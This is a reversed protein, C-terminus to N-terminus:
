IQYWTDVGNSMLRLTANAAPTINGSAGSSNILSDGGLPAVTLTNASADIRRIILEWSIGSGLSAPDPLNIQFSGGTVNATVYKHTQNLSHPAGSNTLAQYNGGVAGNFYNPASGQMYANWRATGSVANAGYFSYATTVQADTQDDALFGYLTTVAAGTAVVAAQVNYGIATTIPTGSAADVYTLQDYGKYTAIAANAGSPKYLGSFFGTVATVTQDTNVNIINYDGYVTATSAGTPAYDITKIHNYKTGSTATWSKYFTHNANNNYHNDSWAGLVLNGVSRVNQNAATFLIPTTGASSRTFTNGVLTYYGNTDRVDVGYTCDFTTCGTIVASPSGSAAASLYLATDCNRFACATIVVPVDGHEVTVGRAAAQVQCGTMTFDPSAGDVKFGYKGTRATNANDYYCNNFSISFAGACHFGVDYGFAFCDSVRTGDAGALVGNIQFLYATGPRQYYTVTTSAWSTIPWFHCQSVFCLDTTQTIHIGYVCDGWIGKFVSGDAAYGYIAKNFGVIFCNEVLVNWAREGGATGQTYIATGTWGSYAAGANVTAPDTADNDWAVNFYSPILAVGKIGSHTRLTIFNAAAGSRILCYKMQEFHTTVQGPATVEHDVGPLKDSGLLLVGEPITLSTVLYRKPGLRVVSNPGLTAAYNLQDQIASTDDTVGDGVAGNDDVLIIINNTIDHYDVDDWSVNTADSKLYKGAHGTQTPLLANRAALATTQGTGGNAIPLAGSVESTLDITTDVSATGSTMKVYGTSASFDQGTGGKATTVIGTVSNINSRAVAVADDFVDQMSQNTLRLEIYAGADFAQASTGEQGRTVTLNNGSLATVKVIEQKTPATLSDSIVAWFYNSGAISPFVAGSAVTIATQGSTIAGSITTSGFNSFRINTTTM